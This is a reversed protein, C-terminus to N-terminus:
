ICFLIKLGFSIIFLLLLILLFLIFVILFFALFSDIILLLSILFFKAGFYEIFLFQVLPLELM